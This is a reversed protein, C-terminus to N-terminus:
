ALPNLWWWSLSAGSARTRLSCLRRVEHQVLLADPVLSGRVVSGQTVEQYVTWFGPQEAIVRM